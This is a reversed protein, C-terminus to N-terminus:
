PELLDRIRRLDDISAGDWDDPEPRLMEAAEQPDRILLPRMGVAAAGSLEHYSGDGVYLCGGPRVDLREAALLYIEPDPKRLGVDCSFVEID